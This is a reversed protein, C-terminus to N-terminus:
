SEETKGWDSSLLAYSVFCFISKAHKSLKIIISILLYVSVLPAEVLFLGLKFTCNQPIFLDSFFFRSQNERSLLCCLNMGYKSINAPGNQIQIERCLADKFRLFFQLRWCSKFFIHHLHSRALLSTRSWFEVKNRMLHYDPLLKLHLFGGINWESEWDWVFDVDLFYINKRRRDKNFLFICSNM